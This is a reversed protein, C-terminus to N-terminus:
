HAAVPRVLIQGLDDGRLCFRAEGVQVLCPSGPQLIRVRAGIRLGLEALRSVWRSDGGIDSVDAWQGIGLLEFPILDQM